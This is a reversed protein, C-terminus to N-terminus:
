ASSKNTRRIEIRLRSIQGGKGSEKGAVRRRGRKRALQRMGHKVPTFAMHTVIKLQKENRRRRGGNASGWTLSWLGGTENDGRTGAEAAARRRGRRPTTRPWPAAKELAEFVCPVKKHAYSDESRDFLFISEYPFCHLYTPTKLSCHM